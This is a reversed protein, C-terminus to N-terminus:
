LREQIGLKLEELLQLIEEFDDSFAASSRIMDEVLRYRTQEGTERDLIGPVAKKTHPSLIAAIDRGLLRASACVYDFDENEVLDAEESFLREDNGADIYTRMILALDQADSAREPYKDHWSIIKMLALGALTAFQIELVPNSRLRVMLSHRYSEEFGLTTMEIEHDPPWTLSDSRGAIPGFPIIDIILREKFKLRQVENTPTFKGTAELGERLKKYHDWDPVRVGFDIDRTARITPIDYGHMLIMDRATAGVIFFPVGQSKAIHATTEFAELTFNDIKGSLDLLNKSM